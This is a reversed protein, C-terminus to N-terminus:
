DKLGLQDCIIEEAKENIVLVEKAKTGILTSAPHGLKWKMVEDHMGFDDVTLIPLQLLWAEFDARYIVNDRLNAGCVPCFNNNTNAKCCKRSPPKGAGTLEQYLYLLDSALGSLALKESNYQGDGLVLVVSGVRYDEVYGFNISAYKISM